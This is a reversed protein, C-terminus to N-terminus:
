MEARHYFELRIGDPDDLWIFPKKGYEDIQIGSNEIKQHKLYVAIETLEPFTDVGFALHNMGINEKNYKGAWAKNRPTTVFIRTQGVIFMLAEGDDNDPDGLVATYFERSRALDKVYLVIHDIFHIGM